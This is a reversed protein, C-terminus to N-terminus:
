ALPQGRLEPRNPSIFRLGKSKKCEVGEKTWADASALADTVSDYPSFAAGDHHLNAEHKLWTFFELPMDSRLMIYESIGDNCVSVAAKCLPARAVVNYIAEVLTGGGTVYVFGPRDPIPSLIIKGRLALKM